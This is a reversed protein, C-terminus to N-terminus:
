TCLKDISYVIYPQRSFFFGGKDEDKDADGAYCSRTICLCLDLYWVHRAAVVCVCAMHAAKGQMASLAASGAVEAYIM